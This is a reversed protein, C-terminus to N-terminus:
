ARPSSRRLSASRGKAHLLGGGAAALVLAFTGLLESFLRRWERRPDDFDRRDGFELMLVHHTRPFAPGLAARDPEQATASSVAGTGQATECKARGDTRSAPLQRDPGRGRGTLFVSRAECRQIMDRRGRMIAASAKDSVAPAM